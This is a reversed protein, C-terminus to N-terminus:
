SGPAATPFRFGSEADALAPYGRDREVLQLRDAPYPWRIGLAADLPNIGAECQPSYEASLLYLLQTNDQLACFGHAFGPPVWMMELGSATLEVAVHRGFSPSGHRIDVAVDLASGSVIRVLKGQAHPDTQYHLGRLVGRASTSENVQAPELDIGNAAFESRKFTELFRGRADPFVRPRVVVVDPIETPEFEFPM